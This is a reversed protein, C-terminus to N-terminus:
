HFFIRKATKGRDEHPEKAAGSPGTSGPKPVVARNSRLLYPRVLIESVKLAAILLGSALM